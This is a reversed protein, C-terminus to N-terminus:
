PWDRLKSAMRASWHARRPVVNFSGRLNLFVHLRFLACCTPTVPRGFTCFTAFVFSMEVLHSWQSAPKMKNTQRSPNKQARATLFLWTPSRFRFLYYTQPKKATTLQLFYLVHICVVKSLSYKITALSNFGSATKSSHRRNITSLTAITHQKNDLKNHMNLWTLSTKRTLACCPLVCSFRPLVFFNSLYFHKRGNVLVFTFLYNLRKVAEVVWQQM